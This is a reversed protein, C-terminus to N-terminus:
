KKVLGLLEHFHRRIYRRLRTYRTHMDATMQYYTKVPKFQWRAAPFNVRALFPPRDFRFNKVRTKLEM